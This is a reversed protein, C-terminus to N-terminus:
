VLHSMGEAFGMLVPTTGRRLAEALCLFHKGPLSCHTARYQHPDHNTHRNKTRGTIRRELQDLQQQAMRFHLDRRERRTLGLRPRHAFHMRRERAPQIQLQFVQRHVLHRLPGIAHEAAQRVSRARCNDGLQQREALLHDIQAGIVPEIVRASGVDVVFYHRDQELVETLALDYGRDAVPGTGMSVCFCTGGAQGCNVAIVFPRDDADAQAAACCSTTSSAWRTFSARAPASSPMAPRPEAAPEQLDTLGGREDRRASWLRKDPPLQYRKWSHPGVAYGFLAEDDRRRLRYHGGDQEDTWGIPLDASSRLEDYVIAQDRVTPGVITYGRSPSRRSCRTSRTASSSDRTSVPEHLPSDSVARTANCGSLETAHSGYNGAVRTLRAARAARQPHRRPRDGGAAARGAVPALVGAAAFGMAVVSLAMGAAVSQRPSGLSRRGIAVADAVRDIRDVTIVADATESSVTAGPAGMAIGVDALALAPADNVGDGVM